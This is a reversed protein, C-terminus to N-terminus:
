DAAAASSEERAVQRSISEVLELLFALVFGAVLSGIAGVLLLRTPNSRIPRDSTRVPDTVQIFGSKLAQNEKLAAENQKGVLFGNYDEARKVAEVLQQQEAQLGILTALARERDDIQQNIQTIAIASTEVLAEQEALREGYLRAQNNWFTATASADRTAAEEAKRTADDVRDTYFVVLSRAQELQTQSYDRQGALARLADQTAVVERGVDDINHLQKFKLLEQRAATVSQETETLEGGLFERIVTAPRAQLQRYTKLTEDALTTLVRQAEDPSSAAYTINIFAGDTSSAINAKLEAPTIGLGTAAITNFAVTDSFLTQIFDAQAQVIEDRTATARFQGFLSVEGPAAAVVQLRTTSRYLPAETAQAGVIIAMTAGFLLAILWWRKRVVRWYTLFETADM